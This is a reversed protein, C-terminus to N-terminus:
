QPVLKELFGRLLKDNQIEGIELMLKETPLVQVLQVLRSWLARSSKACAAVIAENASLWDALLKISSTMCHYQSMVKLARLGSTSDLIKIKEEIEVTNETSDSEKEKEIENNPIPTIVEPTPIKPTPTKVAPKSPSLHQLFSPALTIKHRHTPQFLKNSLDQLSEVAIQPQPTPPTIKEKVDKKADVKFHDEEEQSSLEEQSLRTGSCSSGSYSSDEDSSTSACHDSDAHDGAAISDEGESLDGDEAGSVRRRRRSLMRSKMKKSKSTPAWHDGDAKIDGNGNFNDGTDIKDADKLQLTVQQCVYGLVHSFFALAFAIAASSRNSRCAQLDHVNILCLVCIKFLSDGNLRHQKWHDVTKTPSISTVANKNSHRSDHAAQKAPNTPYWLPLMKPVQKLLTRKLSSRM